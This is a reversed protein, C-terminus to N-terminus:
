PDGIHSISHIHKSEITRHQDRVHSPWTQSTGFLNGEDQRGRAMCRRPPQRAGPGQALSTRAQWSLHKGARAEKLRFGAVVLSEVHCGKSLSVEDAVSSATTVEIVTADRWLMQFKSSIAVCVDVSCCRLGKAGLGAGAVAAGGAGAGGGGVSRVLGYLSKRM